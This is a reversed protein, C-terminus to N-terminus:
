RRTVMNPFNSHQVEGWWHWHVKSRSIVVDLQFTCARVCVCVCVCCKYCLSLTHCIHPCCTCIGPDALPTTVTQLNDHLRLRSGSVALQHVYSDTWCFYGRYHTWRPYSYPYWPGAAKVKTRNERGCWFVAPQYSYRISLTWSPNFTVQALRHWKDTSRDIREFSTAIKFASM